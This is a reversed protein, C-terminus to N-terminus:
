PIEGIRLKKIELEGPEPEYEGIYVNLDRVVVVVKGRGVLRSDVIEAAARSVWEWCRDVVVFTSFCQFFILLWTSDPPRVKRPTCTGRSGARQQDNRPMHAVQGNDEYSPPKPLVSKRCESAGYRVNRRRM